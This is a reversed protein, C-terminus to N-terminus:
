RRSAQRERIFNIVQEAIALGLTLNSLTRRMGGGLGRAAIQVLHRRLECCTALRKKAEQIEKLEQDLFM